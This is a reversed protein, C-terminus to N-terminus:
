GIIKRQSVSLEELEPEPEASLLEVTYILTVSPPIDPARGLKGYAFRANVEVVAEEGINM